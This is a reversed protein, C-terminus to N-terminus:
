CGQIPLRELKVSEMAPAEREALPKYLNDICLFGALDDRAPHTLLYETTM